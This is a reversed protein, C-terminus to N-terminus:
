NGSTGDNKEVFVELTNPLLSSIVAENKESVMMMDSFTKSVKLIIILLGIIFALHYKWYEIPM